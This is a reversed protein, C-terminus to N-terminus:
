PHYHVTMLLKDYNPKIIILMRSGSPLCAILHLQVALGESHLGFCSRKDKVVLPLSEVYCESTRIKYLAASLVSGLEQVGSPFGRGMFVM